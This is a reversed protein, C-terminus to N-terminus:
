GVGDDTFASHSFLLTCATVFRPPLQVPQPPCQESPISATLLTCVSGQAVKGGSKYLLAWIGRRNMSSAENFVRLQYDIFAELCTNPWAEEAFFALNPRKLREHSKIIALHATRPRHEFCCPTFEHQSGATNERGDMDASGPQPIFM